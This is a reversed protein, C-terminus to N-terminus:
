PCPQIGDIKASRSCLLMKNSLVQHVRGGIDKFMWTALPWWLAIWLPVGGIWGLHYKHLGGVQIYAVEVLTGVVIAFLGLTLERRKIEFLLVWLGLAAAFPVWSLIPHLYLSYICLRTLFLIGLQLGVKLRWDEAKGGAIKPLRVTNSVPGTHWALAAVFRLILGWYILMWLPITSLEPFFTPVTYSYVGRYVVTNWDNFGGLVTCFALFVLETRGGLVAGVVIRMAFVLALLITMLVLQDAALCIAASFCLLIAGDVFVLQRNAEM